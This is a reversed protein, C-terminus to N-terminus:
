KALADIVNFEMDLSNIQNKFTPLTTNNFRKYANTLTAGDYAENNLGEVAGILTTSGGKAGDGKKGVQARLQDMLSDIKQLKAHAFKENISAYAAKKKQKGAM